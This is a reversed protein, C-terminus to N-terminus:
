GRLEGLGAVRRWALEGGTVDCLHYDEGILILHSGTEREPVSGEPRPWFRRFAGWAAPDESELDPCLDALARGKGIPKLSVFRFVAGREEYREVM